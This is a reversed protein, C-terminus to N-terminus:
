KWAENQVLLGSMKKIQESPIPMMCWGSNYVSSSYKSLYTKEYSVFNNLVDSIEGWRALDYWRHGEMALEARREAKLASMAGEKSAFQSEPWLGVRYNAAANAGTTGGVKDDLVYSSTTEEMTEPDVAKVYGKAARSRVQNVYERAGANDGTEILAEAYMLLVDAFRIMHFNKASSGTVTSISTSGQDAKKPMTKKNLYPGGNTIDRVWGSVTTPVSWDWYPIDFRGVSIDLRPDTYVSLDTNIETASENVVSLTPKQQYSGDLYPLGNDDVIYSNVLDYSPQYFGWGGTGLAGSMGIHSTGNISSPQEIAGIVAQQVDFVSEGSWDSEGATYLSEYTDALTYKNGRSDKGNDIVNKLIDRAETWHNSTGNQGNYKSSQYVRVKALFAEAAWKNAQGSLSADWTDPLNEYAFQFDEAIKDWIYIYNGSEDVNSVLPNEPHAEYDETGVYPVAAGFLKAVELHFVGRLFRAQAVTETYFDKEQGQMAKFSAESEDCMSIVDNAKAVGNYSWMWKNALYGNNTTFQYVELSTFASQDNYTSGKNADGGMVDGYPYNTVPTSFYDSTYSYLANYMGVIALQMNTQSSTLTPKTVAGVPDVVLFDDGCSATSMLAVLASIYIAIKKM